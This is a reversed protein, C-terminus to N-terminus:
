IRKKISSFYKCIHDFFMKEFEDESQYTFYLGKNEQEFKSRFFRVEKYQNSDISSPPAPIDSFYLFVQKGADMMRCIEEETGSQYHDTPTGFRTWFIAVVADCDDIFQKNLINQASDGTQAFGSKSWHRTRVSVSLSCSHLENFRQVCNEIVHLEDKIDGPCSILLDYQTINNPM